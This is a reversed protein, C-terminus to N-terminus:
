IKKNGLVYKINKGILPLSLAACAIFVKLAEDPNVLVMALTVLIGTYFLQYLFNFPNNKTNDIFRSFMNQCLM